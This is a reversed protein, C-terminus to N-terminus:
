PLLPFVRVWRPPPCLGSCGFTSSQWSIHLHANSGAHSPDGHLPYGNYGIFQIAPM